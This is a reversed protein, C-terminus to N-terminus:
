AFVAALGGLAGGAVIAQGNGKEEFFSFYIIIIGIILSFQLVYYYPEIKEPLKLQYLFPSIILM